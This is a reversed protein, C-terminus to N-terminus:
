EQKRVISGPPLTPVTAFNAPLDGTLSELFTVIDSTDADSLTVGLQVRAMVKVAEPLTPVSGDHFYPATKAVNRLSPARFVYLDAPDKTVDFRGKDINTSGTALWYDEVVGFKQYMGGGVGVGNHCMVCGINIFKQLGARATPSLAESNGNLYSDFPSPTVLTREYSAIATAVNKLSLSRPDNPFAAKFLLTYAQIRELREIVAREDPQGSTIPSTVAKMVQDELSDRDGRWHIVFSLSANLITPANRPHLRQKVGISTPLADTGYLAPQHCSACSMNGDVTMRPDFFLMRGLEVREKTIPSDPKAIGKPLPQFREQAQQLLAADDEAVTTALSIALVAAIGGALGYVNAKPSNMQRINLINVWDFGSKAFV